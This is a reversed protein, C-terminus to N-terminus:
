GGKPRPNVGSSSRSPAGTRTATMECASQCRTNLASWRQDALRNTEVAVRVREDADGRWAEGTREEADRGVDPNWGRKLGFDIRRRRGHPARATM